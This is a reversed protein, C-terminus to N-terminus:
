DETHRLTLQTHIPFVHPPGLGGTGSVFRAIPFSLSKLSLDFCLSAFHLNDVGM